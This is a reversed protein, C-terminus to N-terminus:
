RRKYPINLAFADPNPPLKNSKVETQLTHEVWKITLEQVETWEFGTLKSLFSILSYSIWCFGGSKDFRM